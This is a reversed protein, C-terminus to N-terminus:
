SSQKFRHVQFPHIILLIMTPQNSVQIQFFLISDHCRIFPHPSIMILGEGISADNTDSIALASLFKITPHVHFMMPM